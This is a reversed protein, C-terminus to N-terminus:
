PSRLVDLPPPRRRRNRRHGGDALVASTPGHYLRGAAGSSLHGPRAAPGARGASRRPTTDLPRVHLQQNPSAVAEDTEGVCALDTEMPVVELFAGREVIEDDPIGHAEFQQLIGDAASTRQTHFTAPSQALGPISRWDRKESDEALRASGEGFGESTLTDNPVEVRLTICVEVGSSRRPDRTADRV